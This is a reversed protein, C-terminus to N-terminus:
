SRKIDGSVTSVSGSINGCRVDGSITSVSGGVNGCTIDGSVTKVAGTVGGKVQVSNCADVSLSEINGEIVISISKDNDHQGQLVGDIYVKNNVISVNSGSYSSQNIRITSM